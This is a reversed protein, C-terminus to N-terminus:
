CGSSRLKTQRQQLLEEIKGIETESLIVDGAATEDVQQLRCGGVIAATMQPHGLTWAICLQAM